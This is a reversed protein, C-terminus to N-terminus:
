KVNCLISKLVVLGIFNMSLDLYSYPFMNLWEDYMIYHIFKFIATVAVGIFSINVYINM